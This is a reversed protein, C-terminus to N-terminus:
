ALIFTASAPAGPGTLEGIQAVTLTVAAGDALGDAARAAAPYRWEPADTDATRRVIGGSALTVRYAERAEGLSADNGDLWAFGARSRRRWTFVIDEGETRGALFVPALPRLAAGGLTLVVPPTAADGAGTARVRITRGLLEAPPDVALLRTADLLVFCTGAAHAAVMTGRRARLLNSLRFRGGGLAMADGFQVIEDGIVALNAGALVAAESRSELWMDGLQVVVASARDWRDDCGTPLPEALVGIASAAGVEGAMAYSDGDDASFAIGTRRWGPSAGAAAIWLRPTTGGGDFLPPLDLVALTTPGPAADGADHSRGPDAVGSGAARLPLREADLTVVFDGFSWRRVAWGSMVRDGARVGLARWPLRLAATTRAALGRALVDAALRKADDAALVVPADIQGTRGGGGRRSARQLGAQYDRAPDLFGIAVADDLAAAAARTESRATKTDSGAAVSGLDADAITAAAGAGARMVLRAGDDTFRLDFLRALQALPERAAGGRAAVFGEFAPFVGAAQLVGDGLDVAVGGADVAGEDAVVEFTLNPIRNGYDALPLDEFVAYALGRYAPCGGGEAAAILPDAGQGEGGSHLRMTVPTLWAGGADRLLKGDAWVRAVRVVARASLAVAFSASYSYSTTRAGGRKGGGSTTATEAIGATWILNGAVRVCGYVRPLPEGYASSQVALNGLRAGERAKGSGLIARDLSGGLFTGMLGGIPGGLARGVTGLVLTAM